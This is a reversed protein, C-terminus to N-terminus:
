KLSYKTGRGRGERVIVGKDCMEKLLQSTKTKGFDVYPTIESIPKLMTKSLLRYIQKEDASLNMDPEYLPLTIKITNESVEFDPKAASEEYIQKIRIIGTGFIEVIGLRYFVNALIPNRLVSIKGTLYEEKTIGSPLGGPSIIEIRHNFMMVRIQSEVDWLRHILANAIAERFAAEPIKEMPERKAGQIEEYVYYDEFVELTKEYASLISINSYTARKQIININEGFKIIDIGPFQNMDSLIAAANSYGKVGDYLNLTRLTDLNFNEIRINEKLKHELTHFTLDQNRSPLEEFRINKGELILRSLELTDVEITATDNRKFAKSKYLYPKHTGSKVTLKITKNKQVKLTYNPQPSISDNIKNEINLCSQKVDPLGRVHGEDDVGFIIDGGDYNSFASVTKLFTNTIDEKFELQKTEKM